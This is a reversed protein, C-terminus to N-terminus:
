KMPHKQFGDKIAQAIRTIRDEWQTKSFNKGVKQSPRM